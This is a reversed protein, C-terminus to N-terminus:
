QSRNQTKITEVLTQNTEIGLYGSVCSIQANKNSCRICICSHSQLIIRYMKVAFVNSTGETEALRCSTPSVSGAESAGEVSDHHHAPAVFSVGSRDVM